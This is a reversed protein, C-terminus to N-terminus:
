SIHLKFYGKGYTPKPLQRQLVHDVRLLTNQVPKKLTLRDVKGLSSM